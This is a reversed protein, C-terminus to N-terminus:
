ATAREEPLFHLGLNRLRDQEEEDLRVRREPINDFRDGDATEIDFYWGDRSKCRGIITGSQEHDGVEPIFLVADGRVM